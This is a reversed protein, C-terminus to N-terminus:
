GLLELSNMYCNEGMHFAICCCHESSIEGISGLQIAEGRTAHHTLTQSNFHKGEGWDPIFPLGWSVMLNKCM